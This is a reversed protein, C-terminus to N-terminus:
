SNSIGSIARPIATRHLFRSAKSLGITMSRGTCPRFPSRTGHSTTGSFLAVEQTEEGVGFDPAPLSARYIIQVQSIRPVNYIGLVRDIEIEACAEERAERRAGDVVTENLELFGAPITWFGRRPNIDRRCLMIKGGYGVVAGVVIKPNEYDIFGCDPCVLRERNDGEPIELVRPGGEPSSDSARTM